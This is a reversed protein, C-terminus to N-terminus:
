YCTLEEMDEGLNTIFNYILLASNNIDKMDVTEVTTHMYKLPISILLTPIGSRAIQMTWADTGTNGEEVDIQYAINCKKAIEILKESLKPHINPGVAIAPGKGLPYTSEKDAGSMNGHCVDIAIGIDPNNIYTSMTAGRCGMEEQVTATCILECNHLTNSLMKLVEYMVAVGARDDLSKSSIVSNQMDTWCNKYTILDGVSILEDVDKKSLGTDIYMEKMKPAKKQESSKILHPPKAGIVGTIDRKGHVIIEQAPLIRDDIGGIGSFRLFGGKDIDTVIL